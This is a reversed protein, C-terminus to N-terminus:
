GRLELVVPDLPVARQERVGRRGQGLDLLLGERGPVGRREPEPGDADALTVDSLCLVQTRLVRTERVATPLGEQNSRRRPLRSARQRGLHRLPIRWDCGSGARELRWKM